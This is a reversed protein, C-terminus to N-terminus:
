AAQEEESEDASMMSALIKASTKQINEAVSRIAEVKGGSWGAVYGFSYDGAEYGMAHLVVYAVSEAEVECYGRRAAYNVQKPDHLLVHALEHATTKVRQELTETSKIVVQMTDFSTYGKAGGGIEEESYTFGEAEIQRVLEAHLAADGNGEGLPHVVEPLDEGDTQAIDFVKALRFGVVARRTTIEGSTADEREIKKVMPALIGIAKEGKRVQRGLSQWKRYGAVRTAGPCQIMILMVNNASYTHFAAQTKLYKEWEGSALLDEVGAELSKIAEQVQEQTKTAM